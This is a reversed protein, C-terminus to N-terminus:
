KTLSYFSNIPHYKMYLLLNKYHLGTQQTKFRPLPHFYCARTSGLELALTSPM